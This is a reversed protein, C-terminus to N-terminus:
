GGRTPMPSRRPSRRSSRWSAPSTAGRRPRPRRPPLGPDPGQRAEDRLLPPPRLLRGARLRPRDRPAPAPRRDAGGRRLPLGDGPRRLAEGAPGQRGARPRPRPRAGQAGGGHRRPRDRRLAPLPRRRRAARPGRGVGPPRDPARAETDRLLVRPVPGFSDTLTELVGPRRARSSGHAVSRGNDYAGPLSPTEDFHPRKAMTSDELGAESPRRRSVLNPDCARRGAIQRTPECWDRPIPGHGASAIFCSVPM